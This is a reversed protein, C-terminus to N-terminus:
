PSRLTCLSPGTLTEGPSSVKGMAKSAVTRRLQLQGGPKLDDTEEGHVLSASLLHTDDALRVGVPCVWTQGRGLSCDLLFGLLQQIPFSRPLVLPLWRWLVVAGSPWFRTEPLECGWSWPAGLENGLWGGLGHNQTIGGRVEAYVRFNYNEGWRGRPGFKSVQNSEERM